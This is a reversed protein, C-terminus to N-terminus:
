TSTNHSTPKYFINHIVTSTSFLKRFISRITAVMRYSRAHLFMPPTVSHAFNFAYGYQAREYLEESFLHVEVASFVETSVTTCIAQYGNPKPFAIFDRLKQPIPKWLAHVYGLAVYCEPITAVIVQIVVVDNIANINGDKRGLKKYFSYLGKTRLQVRVAGYKETLVSTLTEAANAIDSECQTLRKTFFDVTQAYEQPYVYQFALDELERKLIQIGLRDATPVYIELTERAIRRRKTPPMYELTRMNHLRDSLKIILVRSDHAAILFLHQLTEFSNERRTNTTNKLKTVGRVLLAVEKGFLHALDDETTDTDEITDHLIAAALTIPGMGLKSLIEATRFLHETHPEGSRRRQGKHAQQAYKWVRELYACVNPDIRFRKPLLAIIESVSRENQVM